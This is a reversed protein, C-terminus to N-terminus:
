AGHSDMEDRAGIKKWQRKIFSKTALIWQPNKKGSSTSSLLSLLESLSLMIIIIM